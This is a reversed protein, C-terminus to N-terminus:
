WLGMNPMVPKVPIQPLDPLEPMNEVVPLADAIKDSKTGSEDTSVLGNLVTAADHGEILKQSHLLLSGSDRLLCVLGQLMVLNTGTINGKAPMQNLAAQIIEAVPAVHPEIFTLGILKEHLTRLPSLAKHTVETRGMYVKKWIEDASRAVEAFLASGLGEVEEVLGAESVANANEHKVLPAVRFLQWRFDMRSRVYDSSVVSARIIAEWLKHKAIWANLNDEYSELFNDKERFFDERIKVLEDTVLGAKDEPIAWGSMFRVGHRDLFNFARAKLTSFIKLKEPDAIRKSGLTALDDPPLEVGGFDEPTMKKRASWLSIGLNLALINDLVTLSSQITRM